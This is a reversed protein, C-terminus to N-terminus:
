GFPHIEGFDEACTTRVVRPLAPPLTSAEGDAFAASRMYVEITERCGRALRVAFRLEEYGIRLIVVDLTDGDFGVLRAAGTADSSAARAAHRRVDTAPAGVAIWAGELPRAPTFLDRVVFVVAATTDGLRAV